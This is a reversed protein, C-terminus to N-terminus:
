ESPGQDRHTGVADEAEKQEITEYAELSRAFDDLPSVTAIIPAPDDLGTWTGLKSYIKILKDAYMTSICARQGVDEIDKSKEFQESLFNAMKVMGKFSDNESVEPREYSQSTEVSQFPQSPSGDRTHARPNSRPQFAEVPEHKSKRQTRMRSITAKSAGTMEMISKTSAGADLMAFITRRTKEDIPSPM